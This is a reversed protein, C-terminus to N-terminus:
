RSCGAAIERSIGDRPAPADGHRVRKTEILEAEEVLERFLEAGVGCDGDEYRSERAREAGYRIEERSQDLHREFCEQDVIEEAIDDFWSRREADAIEDAIVPVIKGSVNSVTVPMAAATTMM